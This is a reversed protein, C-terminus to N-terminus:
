HPQMEAVCLAQAAVVVCWGTNLQCRGNRPLMDSEPSTLFAGRSRTRCLGKLRQTLVLIRGLGRPALAFAASRHVAAVADTGHQLVAKKM